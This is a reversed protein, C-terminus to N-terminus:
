NLPRCVLQRGFMLALLTSAYYFLKRYSPAISFLFLASIELKPKFRDISETKEFRLNYLALDRTPNAQFKSLTCLISNAYTYGLVTIFISFLM